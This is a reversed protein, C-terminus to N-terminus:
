PSAVTVEIRPLPRRSAPPTLLLQQFAGTAEIRQAYVTAGRGSEPRPSRLALAVVVAAAGGLSCIAVLLGPRATRAPVPGSAARGLLRDIRRDLVASPASLHASGLQEEINM